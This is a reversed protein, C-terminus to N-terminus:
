LYDHLLRARSPHRLRRLAENQIQRIREKTLGFIEGLEKLTYSRNGRLGFRLGLIRAERPTLTDLVQELQEALLKQRLTESPSDFLEDAIFDGLESDGEEGVPNELSIPQCSAQIMFRVKQPELDMQEAIEEPTPWRGLEQELLQSTKYLRRIRASMQTPIRITRGQAPLARTISQRIWWTAYTSFRNGRGYDFKEVARMLGLNGEQILDLFPVGHGRYKKAISVVLQTNARIFRARAEEATQIQRELERREESNFEETALRQRATCGREIQQALEIEEEHSLLPERTMERLYLSITDDAEIDGLPVDETNIEPSEPEPRAEEAEEKDDYVSIDHAELFSFIEDLWQSDEEAEPLVEDMEKLTGRGQHEVAELPKQIQEGKPGGRFGEWRKHEEASYEVLSNRSVNMTEDM